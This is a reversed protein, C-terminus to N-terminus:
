PSLRIGLRQLKKCSALPLADAQRLKEQDISFWSQADQRMIYQQNAERQCNNQMRGVWEREVTHDLTSLKRASYDLVDAPNLFYDVRYRPTIRKESYPPSAVDFRFSPTSPTSSGSFLSSLLPLVFLVILPLLNMVLSQISQPQQPTANGGTPRRRPRGGGFQHVRIGPGGGLNFVFQGGGFPDTTAHSCINTGHSIVTGVEASCAVM